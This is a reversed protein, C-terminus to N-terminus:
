YYAMRKEIGSEEDNLHSLTNPFFHFMSCAELSEGTKKLTKLTTVALYLLRFIKPDPQTARALSQTLSAM